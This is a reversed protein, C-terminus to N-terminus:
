IVSEIKKTKSFRHGSLKAAYLAAGLVPSYQPPILKYSHGTDNLCRMLPELISSGSKFVGGSYSVQTEEGVEFYLQKRVSDIIQSLEYAANEVIGNANIDGMSHARFVLPSLSAIKSRSAGWENLIHACLDLDNVLGFNTKLLDYLATKPLRGDSMKTFAHLAQIAIWYASGEDSFVEGWGGCRAREHEREGYAISGTGAVINISNKCGLASAWGCVMDNDVCFKHMPFLTAIHDSIAKSFVQDEGFSPLGFFAFKLAEASVAAKILIQKLGNSLRSKVAVLGVELYYTSGENHEAIIEGQADILVFATKSGGGDVGLFM